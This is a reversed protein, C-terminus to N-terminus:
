EKRFEQSYQLKPMITLNLYSHFTVCFNIILPYQHTSKETSVRLSDLTRAISKSQAADCVPCSLCMNQKVMNTDILFRNRSNMFIMQTVISSTKKM